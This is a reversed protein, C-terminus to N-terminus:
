SIIRVGTGQYASEDLGVDINLDTVETYEVVLKPRYGTTGVDSSNLYQVGSGSTLIRVIGYDGEDLMSQVQAVNLTVAYETGNPNDGNGTLTGMSSANYDTGSVSCGADPGGNDGADGEWRTTGTAYDWKAGDETWTSNASLIRYVEVTYAGGGWGLEYLYLTAATITVGALSSINFKLLPLHKTDGSVYLQFRVITGFNSGSNDYDVYTDIYTQVDGGFGDTFTAM